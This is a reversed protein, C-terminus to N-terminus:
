GEDAKVLFLWGFPDHVRGDMAVLMKTKITNTEHDTWTTTSLPMGPQTNMTYGKLNGYVGVVDGANASEFDTIVYNPLTKVAGLGVISQAVQEGLPDLRGIPHRNDDQLLQIHNGWMSDSTILTGKGRYNRNFNKQWTLSCWFRWNDLDAETVEVLLAHGKGTGTRQTYWSTLTSELGLGDSGVLRLSNSIGRPQTTGNGSWISADVARAYTEALATGVQDYKSDMVAQVLMTRAHRAEFQHWGWTFVEPDDDAQYPSVEKDGIWAGTLMLDLESVSYQGQYTTHNVEDWLVSLDRIERQVVDSLTAPAIILSSTTNAFTPDTFNSFDANMSVATNVRKEFMARRVMEAPMAETGELHRIYAERYEATDTYRQSVERNRAQFTGEAKPMTREEKEGTADSAIVTGAGSKVAEINTNLVRNRKSRFNKEAEIMDLEASLDDLTVGEPITGGDIVSYVDKERKAFADADLARYQASTFLTFEM